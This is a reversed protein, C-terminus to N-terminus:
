ICKEGSWLPALHSSNQGPVYSPSNCLSSCRRCSSADRWEQSVDPHCWLHSSSWKRKSMQYRNILQNWYESPGLTESKISRLIQFFFFTQQPVIKTLAKPSAITSGLNRVVLWLLVTFIWSVIWFGRIDKSFMTLFSSSSTCLACVVVRTVSVCLKLTGSLFSRFSESFLQSEFNELSWSSPNKSLVEHEGHKSSDLEWDDM